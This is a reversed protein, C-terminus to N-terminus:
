TCRWKNEQGKDLLQEITVAAAATL